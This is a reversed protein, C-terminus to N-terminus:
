SRQLFTSNIKLAQTFTQCPDGKFGSGGDVTALVIGWTGSLTVADKHLTIPCPDYRHHFIYQSTKFPGFDLGQERAKNYTRATHIVGTYFGQAHKLFGATTLVGRSTSLAWTEEISPFRKKVEQVLEDIDKAREASAQYHDPCVSEFDIRCYLLLTIV